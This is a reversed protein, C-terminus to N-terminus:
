EKFKALEQQIETLETVDTSTCAIGEIKNNVILPRITLDYFKVKGDITLPLIQRSAKKTKLVKMKIEVLNDAEKKSFFDRDTKGLVHRYQVDPYMNGISTYLLNQDQTYVSTKTTELLHEYNDKFQKLEETLLKEQTIDVFTIVVGEIMNQSTRYPMIQMKYCIGDLSKVSTTYTTLKDLVRKVDNLLGDYSLNSSLHEIPRGIDTKILNIIRSM